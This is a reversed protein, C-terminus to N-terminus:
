MLYIMISLRIFSLKLKLTIRVLIVKTLSLTTLKISLEVQKTMPNGRPVKMRAWTAKLYCKPVKTLIDLYEPIKRRFRFMRNQYVHKSTEEKTSDAIKHDKEKCAFCRRQSLRIQRISLKAQDSKKNPCESSFHGLISCEFCKVHSKKNIKPKDMKQDSKKLHIQPLKAHTITSGKKLKKVMHDYNDQSHHVHYKGKLRSLERKLMEIERKSSVMKVQLRTIM